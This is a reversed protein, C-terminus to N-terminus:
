KITAPLRYADEGIRVEIMNRLPTVSAPEAGDAAEVSGNAVRLRRFGGNPATLTVIEGKKEFACVGDFKQSGMVACAVTPVGPKEIKEPAKESQGCAMLLLPLTLMKVNACLRLPNPSPEIGEAVEADEAGEAHFTRSIRSFM